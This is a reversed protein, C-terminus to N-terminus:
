SPDPLVGPYVPMQVQGQFVPLYGTDQLFSSADKHLQWLILVPLTVPWKSCLLVKPSFCSFLSSDLM